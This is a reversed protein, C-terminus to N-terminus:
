MPCFVSQHYLAEDCCKEDHSNTEGSLKQKVVQSTQTRNVRNALLLPGHLAIQVIRKPKKMVQM